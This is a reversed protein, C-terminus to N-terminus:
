NGFTDFVVFIEKLEAWNQEGFVCQKSVRQINYNEYDMNTRSNLLFLNMFEDETLRDAYHHAADSIVDRLSHPHINYLHYFLKCGEFFHCIARFSVSKGDKEAIERFIKSIVQKEEIKFSDGKISQQNNSFQVKKKFVQNYYDVM